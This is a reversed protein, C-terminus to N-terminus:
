APASVNGAERTIIRLLLRATFVHDRRGICLPMVHWFWCVIFYKGQCARPQSVCHITCKGRKKQEPKKSQRHLYSASAGAWNQNSPKAQQRQRYTGNISRRGKFSIAFKVMHNDCLETASKKKTYSEQM